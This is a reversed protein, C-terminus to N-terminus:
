KVYNLYLKQLAVLFYSFDDANFTRHVFGKLRNLDHTQHNRVFEAPSYDMLEMMKKGSKIISMRNGWAITAVLFASIEIDEKQSFRHPIQIPDSSIFKPSEYQQAKSNLFETLEKKNM